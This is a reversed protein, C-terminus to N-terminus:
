ALNPHDVAEATVLHDSFGADMLWATLLDGPYALGFEVIRSTEERVRVDGEFHTTEFAQIRLQENGFCVGVVKVGNHYTLVPSGSLGEIVPYPLVLRQHPTEKVAMSGAERSVLAGKFYGLRLRDLQGDTAFYGSTYVDLGILLREPALIPFFDDTETEKGFARPIVALDLEPWSAFEFRDPRHIRNRGHDFVGLPLHKGDQDVRDVVHRCTVLDGHRTVPFACGAYQTPKGNEDLVLIPFLFKRADM